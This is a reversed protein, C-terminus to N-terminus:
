SSTLVNIDHRRVKHFYDTDGWTGKLGIGANLVAEM